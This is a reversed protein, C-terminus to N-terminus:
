TTEDQAFHCACWHGTRIEKWEPVERSCKEAALPCRPHFPCGSPPNIPSPVEGKLVQHERRAGVSPLPISSLLARTYPHRPNGYLERIGAMEVFHGLYMVAAKNCIYKVVSLDHSIFMSTFKLEKKLDMMLNLVQSRVSVDLASVPEDCVLFGPEMILARAIVIRQRQGGSFEHPYRNLYEEKLGTLEMIKAVKELREKKSGIKYVRLPSEIIERITMRPNLAAYPDQFVMQMKRRMERMEERGLRSLDTGEYLISGEDPEVLRLVTRALTSKGCGSEGVIGLTDGRNLSFSVGDVAHVRNLPRGFLSRGVVFSTKCNEVQLVPTELSM